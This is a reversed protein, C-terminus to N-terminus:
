KKWTLEKLNNYLLSRIYHTNEWEDLKALRDKDDSTTHTIRSEVRQFPSVYGNMSNEKPLTDSDFYILPISNSIANEQTVITYGCDLWGYSYNDKGGKKVHVEIRKKYKTSYQNRFCQNGFWECLKRVEKLTDESYFLKCKDSIIRVDDNFKLGYVVNDIPIIDKLSALAQETTIQIAVYIEPITFGIDDHVFSPVLGSPFLIDRIKLLKKLDSLLSGGSISNDSLIVWNKKKMLTYIDAINTSTEKVNLINYLSEILDSITSFDPNVDHDERCEIRALHSFETILGPNDVSFYLNDSFQLTSKNNYLKELSFIVERWAEDLIPEPLYIINAFLALGAKRYEEPLKNIAATVRTSFSTTKDEWPKYPHRHTVRELYQIKAIIDEKDLFEDEIISSFTRLM